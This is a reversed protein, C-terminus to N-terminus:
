RIFQLFLLLYIWLADLFHWYIAAIELGLKNNSSYAKNSAYVSVVILSILGGGLHALHLGSLLFLYQGAPHGVLFVEQDVLQGWGLFQSVSFGIGLLLTLFVGTKIGQYNDKKASSVAYNMTISSIIIIAASIWFMVPVDVPVFNPKGMAVVYASTLGGFLMIITIIALWMLNKKVKAKLEKDELSTQKDSM